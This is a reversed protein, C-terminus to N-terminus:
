ATGEASLAVHRLCRCCYGSADVSHGIILEGRWMCHPCEGRSCCRCVVAVDKGWVTGPLLQKVRMPDAITPNLWLLDVPEGCLSCGLPKVGLREAEAAYLHGHEMLFGLELPFSMRVPKKRNRM